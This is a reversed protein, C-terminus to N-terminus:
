DKKDKKAIDEILKKIEELKDAENGNNVSISINEGHIDHVEVQSNQYNGKDRDKRLVAFLNIIAAIITAGANIEAAIVLPDLGQIESKHFQEYSKASEVGDLKAIEAALIEARKIQESESIGPGTQPTIRLTITSSDAASRVAKIAEDLPEVSGNIKTEQVYPRYKEIHEVTPTSVFHFIVGAAFIFTPIGFRQSWKKTEFEQTSVIELELKPQVNGSTIVGGRARIRLIPSGDGSEVVKAGGETPPPGVVFGKLEQIVDQPTDPSLHIEIVSLTGSGVLKLHATGAFDVM